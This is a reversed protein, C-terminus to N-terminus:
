LGVGSYGIFTYSKILAKDGRHRVVVMAAMTTAGGDDPAFGGDGIIGSSDRHGPPVM